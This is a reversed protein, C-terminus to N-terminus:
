KATASFAELVQNRVRMEWAVLNARRAIEIRVNDAGYLINHLYAFVLADLATPSRDVSLLCLESRSLPNLQRLAWSGSTKGLVSLYPCLPKASNPISQLPRSVLEM